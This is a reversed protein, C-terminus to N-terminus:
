KALPVTFFVTTGKNLMSSISMEGGHLEIL